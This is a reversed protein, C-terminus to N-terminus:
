VWTVGLEHSDAKLFVSHYGMVLAHEIDRILGGALEVLQCVSVGVIPLVAHADWIVVVNDLTSV